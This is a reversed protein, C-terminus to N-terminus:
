MKYQETGLVNPCGQPRRFYYSHNITTFIIDPSGLKTKNPSQKTIVLPGRPKKNNDDKLTAMNIIIEAM